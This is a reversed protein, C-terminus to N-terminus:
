QILHSIPQEWYGMQNLLSAVEEIDAAKPYKIWDVYYMDLATRWARLDAKAKEVSNPEGSAITPYLIIILIFQILIVLLCNKIQNFNLLSDSRSNRKSLCRYIGM